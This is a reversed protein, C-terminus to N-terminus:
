PQKVVVADLGAEILRNRTRNLEEGRPYPGLRVRFFVQGGQDFKVVRSELGLLALRAKLADADSLVKFAGAQVYNGPPDGPNGTAAGAQASPTSDAQAAPTSTAPPAKAGKAPVPAPAAASGPAPTPSYAPASGLASSSAQPAPPQAAGGPERPAAKEDPEDAQAEDKPEADAKAGAADSRKEVRSRPYMSMNPDPADAMSKAAPTRELPKSVKDIFPIPSKAVYLAVGVAIALGLLLGVLLGGFTGGRQAAVAGPVKKAYWGSVHLVMPGLTREHAREFAQRFRWSSGVEM